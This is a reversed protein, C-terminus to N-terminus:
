GPFFKKAQEDRKAKEDEVRNLLEKSESQSKELNALAADEVKDADKVAKKADIEDQSNGINGINTKIDDIVSDTKEKVTGPGDVKDKIEKFQKFISGLDFSGSKAILYLLFLPLGIWLLIKIAIKFFSVVKPIFSQIKQKIAAFFKKLGEM